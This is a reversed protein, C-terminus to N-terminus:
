PYSSEATSTCQSTVPHRAAEGGPQFDLGGASGSVTAIRLTVERHQEDLDARRASRRYRPTRGSSICASSAVASAATHM